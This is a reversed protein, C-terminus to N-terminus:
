RGKERHDSQVKDLVLICYKLLDQEYESYGYHQVYQMVATWPIQGVDMGISRCTNLDWYAFWLWELGLITPKSELAPSATGAAVM